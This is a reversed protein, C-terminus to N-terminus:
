PTAAKRREIEVSALVNRVRHAFSEELRDLRSTVAEIARDFSENEAAKLAISAAMREESRALAVKVEQLESAITDLRSTMGALAAELRDAQESRDGKKAVVREWIQTVAWTAFAVVLAGVSLQGGSFEM